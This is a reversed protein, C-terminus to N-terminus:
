AANTGPNLIRDKIPQAVVHHIKVCTWHRNIFSVTRGFKRDPYDNAVVNGRRWFECKRGAVM